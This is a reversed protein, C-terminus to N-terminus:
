VDKLGGKKDIEADRHLNILHSIIYSYNERSFMKQSLEKLYQADVEPLSITITKM